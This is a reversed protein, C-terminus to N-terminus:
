KNKPFKKNECLTCKSAVRFHITAKKFTTVPKIKHCFMCYRENRLSILM